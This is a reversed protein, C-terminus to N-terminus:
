LDIAVRHDVLVAFSQDVDHHRHGFAHGALRQGGLEAGHDLGHPVLLAPHKQAAPRIRGEDSRGSMKVAIILLLGQGM